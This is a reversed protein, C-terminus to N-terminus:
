RKGAPSRPPRCHSTGSTAYPSNEVHEALLQAAVRERLDALLEAGVLSRSRLCDRDRKWQQEAPEGPIGGRRVPAAASSWASVRSWSPMRSSAGCRATASGLANLPPPMRPWMKPWTLRRHLLADRLRGAEVQLLAPLTSMISAGITMAAERTRAGRLTRSRTQRVRGAAPAVSVDLTLHGPEAPEGDIRSRSSSPWMASSM